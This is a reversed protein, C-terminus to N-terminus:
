WVQSVRFSAPWACVCVQLVSLYRLLAALFRRDLRIDIDLMRLMLSPLHLVDKSQQLSREFGFQLVSEKAEDMPTPSYATQLSTSSDERYFWPRYMTFVVPYM